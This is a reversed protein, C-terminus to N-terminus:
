FYRSHMAQLIMADNFTFAGVHNNLEYLFKFEYWDLDACSLLEPLLVERLRETEMVDTLTM